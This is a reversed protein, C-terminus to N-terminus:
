FLCNLATKKTQNLLSIKIRVLFQQGNSSKYLHTIGLETTESRTPVHQVVISFQFVNAQVFRKYIIIQQSLM